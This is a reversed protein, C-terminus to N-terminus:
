CTVHKSRPQLWAWSGPQFENRDVRINVEGESSGFLGSLPSGLALVRARFRGFPPNTQRIDVDSHSIHNSACSSAGRSERARGERRLARGVDILPAQAHLGCGHRPEGVSRSPSPEGAPSPPPSLLPFPSLSLSLSPSPSPSFSTSLPLPLSLPLSPSFSLCLPPSVSLCLPPSPSLLNRETIEKEKAGLHPMAMSSPADHERPMRVGGSGVACLEARHTVGCWAAGCGPSCSRCPGRRVFRIPIATAGRRCFVIKSRRQRTRSRHEGHPRGRGQAGRARGGRHGGLM